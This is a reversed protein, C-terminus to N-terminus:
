LIENAGIFTYLILKLSNM